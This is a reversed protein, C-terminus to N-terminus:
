HRYDGDDDEEEEEEEEGAEGPYLSTDMGLAWSESSGGAAWAEHSGGQNRGRGSWYGRSDGDDHSHFRNKTTPTVLTVIADLIAAEGRSWGTQHHHPDQTPSLPNKNGM